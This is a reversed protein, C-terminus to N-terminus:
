PLEPVVRRGRVSWSSMGIVGAVRLEVIDGPSVLIPDTLYAQPSGVPDVLLRVTGVVILHDPVDFTGRMLGSVDGLRASTGDRLAFVVVDLYNQNDVEVTVPEGTPSRRAARGGCASVLALLTLLAIGAAGGALRM